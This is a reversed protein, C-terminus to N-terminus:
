RNGPWSAVLNLPLLDDCVKAGPEAETAAERGGVLLSAAGAALLLQPLVKFVRMLVTESEVVVSAGCSPFGRGRPPRWHDRVEAMFLLM